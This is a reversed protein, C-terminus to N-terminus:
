LDALHRLGILIVNPGLSTGVRVLAGTTPLTQTLIGGAGLWIPGPQWNFANDQMEGAAQIIAIQGMPTAGTTIGAVQDGLVHDPEALSAKNNSGIIVVRHGQLNQAAERTILNETSTTPTSVTPLAAIAKMGDEYSMQFIRNDPGRWNLTLSKKRRWILKM